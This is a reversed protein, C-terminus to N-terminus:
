HERLNLFEECKQIGENHPINTYLSTVDLTVLLTGSPLPPLRRLRNLFDTTDWIFSTLSTACPQLFCDMFRSINEMSAGNSSVIRRGPNGPKHIKPLLYFRATRPLYPTLFIKTQKDIQGRTFMSNIYSKVESVYQHTPDVDLKQYYDQNNLQWDAEKLYDEKSLVVVASGKDAPKIVIDTRQRLNRRPKILSMCPPVAVWTSLANTHYLM